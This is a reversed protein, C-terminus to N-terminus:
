GTSRLIFDRLAHDQKLTNNITKRELLGRLEWDQIEKQPNFSNRYIMESIVTELSVLEQTSNQSQAILGELIPDIDSLGRKQLLQSGSKLLYLFENRNISYVTGNNWNLLEPTNGYFGFFPTPYSISILKSSKYKDNLVNSAQILKDMAENELILVSPKIEIFGIKKLFFDPTYIRDNEIKISAPEYLWDLGLSDFIFAWRAELKSRFVITPGNRQTYASYKNKIRRM